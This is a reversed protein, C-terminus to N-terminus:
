RGPFRSKPLGSHPESAQVVLPKRRLARLPAYVDALTRLRRALSPGAWRLYRRAPDEVVHHLITAVIISAVFGLIPSTKLLSIIAYHALYLPYSIEGLWLAVPNDLFWIRKPRWGLRYLGIGVAFWGVGRMLRGITDELGSGLMAIGMVALITGVHVLTRSEVREILLAFTAFLLYDIVEVQLSWTPPNVDSLLLMGAAVQGVTISGVTACCLCFAGTAVFHTPAIRAFRAWLFDARSLGACYVHSLVFGSLVFFLDVALWGVSAFGPVNLHFLVVAVAAYGRLGTLNPLEEKM